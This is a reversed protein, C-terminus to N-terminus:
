RAPKTLSTLFSADAEQVVGEVFQQGATSANAYAAVIAPRLEPQKALIMRLDHEVFQRLDVDSLAESRVAVSLRLPILSTKYPATYYSMKLAAAGKPNPMEYKQAMDALLLWVESQYPAHSLAREAAPLAENFTTIPGFDRGSQILILDTFSFFLEAWLDGRVIGFHAARAAQQRHEAAAQYHQNIPFGNRPPRALEATLMWAGAAALGGAWMGVIWRFRRENLSSSMLSSGTNLLIL